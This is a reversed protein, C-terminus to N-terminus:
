NTTLFISLRSSRLTDPIPADLVPLISERVFAVPIKQGFIDCVILKSSSNSTMELVSDICGASFKSRLFTSTPTNVNSMRRPTHAQM